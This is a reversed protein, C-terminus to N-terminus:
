PLHGRDLDRLRVEVPDRGDVAGHVGEQVDGGLGRQLRRGQHVGREVGAVGGADGSAPTGSASLSTKVVISMGVVQPDFIRSPQRGGYSAVTVARSRAAPTVIRPLVFMSSNAMPEDVSYEAYPGVRLGHSMARMGPPEPPPEAADSAAKSAGSAIPVSVPPEIRWGAAIVPM